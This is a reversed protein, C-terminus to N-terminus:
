EGGGCKKWHLVYVVQFEGVRRRLTVFIRFRFDWLFLTVLFMLAYMRNGIERIPIAAHVASM